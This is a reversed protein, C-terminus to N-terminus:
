KTQALQKSVFDIFTRARVPLGQGFAHLAVVPVASLRADPLVEMLRGADLDHQVAPRLMQAIGLGNLAAVRMADGNDADFVGDIPIRVGDAFVIPVVRGDLKYRVHLHAVLDDKRKPVGHKRLYAPSAVLVLPLSALTHAYLGSDVARGARIAIDFGERIVDVHRDSINVEISLEPNGAMWERTIPDLLTRGLDVPLSVRLKGAASEPIALVDSADELGRILPAVREYYTQGESTLVFARTSRQFLTVGLRKELRAISRSVASPTTELSRAAATFSGAEVSRVFAPLGSFKEFSM